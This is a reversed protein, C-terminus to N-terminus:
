KKKVKLGFIVFAIFLVTLIGGLRMINKAQLTYSRSTPDYKYCYLILQDITAQGKGVKAEKLAFSLTRPKYDIGYLYRVIKGQPTVVMIAAQHAIEGQDDPKYYFGLQDTLTHMSKSDGTLFHWEAKIHAEGLKGTYKDRFQSASKPTDEPDISVSLVKFDRGLELKSESIGAVLGDAILQCLMPCSYYMPAIIVPVNPDSFFSKLPVRTGSENVLEVSLDLTAGIREVVGVENFVPPKTEAAHLPTLGLLIAWVCAILGSKNRM